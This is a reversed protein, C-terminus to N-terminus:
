PKDDPKSVFRRSRISCPSSACHAVRAKRGAGRFRSSRAAAAPSTRRYRRRYERHRSHRQDDHDQAGAGLVPLRRHHSPRDRGQVRRRSAAAGTGAWASRPLHRAPSRAGARRHRRTQRRTGGAVGGSRQLPRAFLRLLRSQRRLEQPERHQDDRHREEPNEARRTGSGEAHRRGVQREPDFRRRRHRLLAVASLRDTDAPEGGCPDACGYPHRSAHHRRIAAGSPRGQCSVGAGPCQSQRAVAMAAHWPGLSPQSRLIALQRRRAAIKKHGTIDKGIGQTGRRAGAPM